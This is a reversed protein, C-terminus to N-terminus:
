VKIFRKKNKSVMQNSESSINLLVGIAFCVCLLSSGGYSLFPLTLGKTPLVGLVVGINIFISSTLTIVLGLAVAMSFKNKAYIAIRFGRYILLAFLSLVFLVGLYGWEEGFVAFTFDTHAEPLFFLKGQGQGLGRGVLEGSHFSLMSQISQFGGNEAQSWPDLFAKVRDFRYSVSYVLFYFAPFCLTVFAFVTKWQMGFIFHVVMFAISCVVVSGFDPQKLLLYLPSCILTFVFLKLKFFRPKDLWHVWYGLIFPYTVKLLESPEFRFGGPLPLWRTAGGVKIGLGPVFTLILGTLAITWLGLGLFIIHKWSAYYCVAIVSLGLVTALFQKKLFFLGDGYSEIAFIYSSSYVQVLGLGLFFFVVLLLSFDTNKALM